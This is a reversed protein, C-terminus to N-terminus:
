GVFGLEEVCRELEVIAADLPAGPRQPLMCVGVFSDPFLETVQHILDNCARSWDEVTEADGIHHEMASARPSFITLDGGREKILRLQNKEIIERIEDDSARQPIPPPLSPNELRALQADRFATHSKPTLTQHGHCDIIM